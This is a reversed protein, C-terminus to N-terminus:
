PPRGICSSKNCYLVVPPYIHHKTRPPLILQRQCSYLNAGAIQRFWCNQNVSSHVCSLPNCWCSCYVDDVPNARRCLVISSRRFVNYGFNWKSRWTEVRCSEVREVHWAWAKQSHRAQRVARSSVSSVVLAVPAVRLETQQTIQIFNHLTHLNNV